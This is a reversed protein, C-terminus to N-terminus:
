AGRGRFGALLSSLGPEGVLTAAEPASLWRRERQSVEPWSEHIELVELPYVEVRVPQLQGGSLRKDYDFVGLKRAGPRGEVGAEEWAERAAAQHPRLGRIPWGKPIVWRRTERSTILLVEVGGTEGRRWALAAYQSLREPAGARRSRGAPSSPTQVPKM